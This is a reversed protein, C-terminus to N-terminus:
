GGVEVVGPRLEARLREGRPDSLIVFTWNVECRAGAAGIVRFSCCGLQEVDAPIPRTDLVNLLVTRMRGPALRRTAFVSRGTDPNVTCAAGDGADAVAELCGPDWLLDAQLGAIRGNNVDLNMCLDVVQGSAVQAGGSRLSLVAAPVDEPEGLPIEHRWVDTDSDRAIGPAADGPSQDDGAGGDGACSALVLASALVVWGRVARVGWSEQAM